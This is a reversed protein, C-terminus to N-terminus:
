TTSGSRAWTTVRRSRSCPGARGRPVRVEAVEKRWDFSGAWGFGLDVDSIPRGLDDLFFLGAHAGGSGRLNKGEAYLSVALSGLGDVPLALGTLVRSDSRGLEIAAQSRHGPFVRYADNNVIWYAPAPDGLEFDGNVVLNTSPQEGVPVLDITLGDFDLTGKAGMLGLSM